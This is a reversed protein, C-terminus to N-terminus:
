DFVILNQKEKLNNNKEVEMRRNIGMGRNRCNRTLHRFDGCTYCNKNERRNVEIAYLNRQSFGARQQSSVMAANM